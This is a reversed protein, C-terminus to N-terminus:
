WQNEGRQFTHELDNDAAYSKVGASSSALPADSLSMKGEVMAQLMDLAQQRLDTEGGQAAKTVPIKVAMINAVRHKVLWTEIMGMLVLAETGTIPVAYRSSLRTNIEADAEALFRTIDTTTVKTTTSFTVDAFEGTIQDATAYSM